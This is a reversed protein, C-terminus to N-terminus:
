GFNGTEDLAELDALLGDSVDLMATAGARAAVAGQGYPVSPTQQEAVLEKPSGFGRQLVALGAAAWGLRGCVAVM